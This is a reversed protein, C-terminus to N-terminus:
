NFFIFVEIKAKRAKRITAWTGSRLVETKSAPCAVLVDSNKVIDNNRELYPKATNCVDGKCFARLKDVIPPYIHVPINM